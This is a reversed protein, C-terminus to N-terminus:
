FPLDDEIGDLPDAPATTVPKPDEPTGTDQAGLAEATAAGNTEEAAIAAAAAQRSDMNLSDGGKGGLGEPHSKVGEEVLLCIEGKPLEMGNVADGLWLMKWFFKREKDRSYQPIGDKHFHEGDIMVKDWPPKGNPNNKTYLHKYYVKENPDSTALLSTKGTKRDKVLILKVWTKFNFGKVMSLFHGCPTSRYPMSLIYTTDYTKLYVDVYYKKEKQTESIDRIKLRPVIKSIYGSLEEFHRVYRNYLFDGTQSNKIERAFYGDGKLREKMAADIKTDKDVYPARIEFVALSSMISVFTAGNGGNRKSLGLQPDNNHSM